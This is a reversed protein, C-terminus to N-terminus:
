RWLAFTQIGLARAARMQNLVTVGDLFWLDHRKNNEDEYSFHPNLSDSDFDVEAESDRATLWAEQM